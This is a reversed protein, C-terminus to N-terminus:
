NYFHQRTMDHLKNVEDTQSSFGSGRHPKM